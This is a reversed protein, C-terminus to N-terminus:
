AGAYVVRLHPNKRCAQPRAANTAFPVWPVVRVFVCALGGSGREVCLWRNHYGEAKACAAVAGGAQRQLDLAIGQATPAPPIGGLASLRDCKHNAVATNWSGFVSVNALYCVSEAHFAVGCAWVSGNGKVPICRVSQPHDRTQIGHVLTAEGIRQHVEILWFAALGSVLLLGVVTGVLVHAPRPRAAAGPAAPPAPAV